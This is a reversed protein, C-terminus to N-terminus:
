TLAHFRDRGRCAHASMARVVREGRVNGHTVFVVCCGYNVVRTAPVVSM